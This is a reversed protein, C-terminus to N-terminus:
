IKQTLAGNVWPHNAVNRPTLNANEEGQTRKKTSGTTSGQKRNRISQAKSPSGSEESVGVGKEFNKGGERGGKDGHPQWRKGKAKRTTPLINRKTRERERRRKSAPISLPVGVLTKFGKRRAIWGVLSTHYTASKGVGM